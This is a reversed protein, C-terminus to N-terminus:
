SNKDGAVGQEMGCGQKEMSQYKQRSHRSEWRRQSFEEGKLIKLNKEATVQIRGSVTTQIPQSAKM